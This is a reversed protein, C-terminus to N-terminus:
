YGKLHGREQLDDPHIDDTALCWDGLKNELILPLLADLNRASSGERVQVMMGLAAKAAAEEATSSEHDSRVGAAAYAVLLQGTVAPAHGDVAAGIRQAAMIKGMVEPDGAWVGPLNMVEALGLVRERSLLREIATVDLEAGADEWPVAPVCSPAMFFIDLPLGASAALLMDIGDVGLVNGVEHPDAVIASTGRPVVLHALEAPALLTSELHMHGDILGPLVLQGDVAITQEASWDYPGVGAVHGDAIVVNATEIQGTFVNAVQGGTLVMDGPEQGLAVRIRRQLLALQDDYAKGTDSTSNTM